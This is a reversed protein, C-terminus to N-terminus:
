RNSLVLINNMIDNPLNKFKIKEKSYVEGFLTDKPVNIVYDIRARCDKSTSVTRINLGNFTNLTMHIDNLYNCNHYTRKIATIKIYNKNWGIFKISGNVNYVSLKEGPKIAYNTCINKTFPKNREIFSLKNSFQNTIKPVRNISSTNSLATLNLCVLLIILLTLAKMKVEMNM